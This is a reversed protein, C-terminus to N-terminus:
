CHYVQFTVVLSCRIEITTNTVKGETAKCRTLTSCIEMSFLKCTVPDKSLNLM